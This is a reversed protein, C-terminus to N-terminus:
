LKQTHSPVYNDLLKRVHDAVGAFEQHRELKERFAKDIRQGEATEQLFERGVQVSQVLAKAVQKNRLAAFASYLWGAALAATGAWPVPFAGTMQIGSKVSARPVLNTVYSPPAYEYTVVPQVVVRIQAPIIEGTIENTRAPAIEVINTVLSVNTRVIGGRQETVEQDYLHACGCFFCAVAAAFLLGILKLTKM